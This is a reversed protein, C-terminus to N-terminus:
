ERMSRNISIRDRGIVRRGAVGWPHSESLYSQGLYNSGLVLAVYRSGEGLSTDLGLRASGVQFLAWYLKVEFDTHAPKERAVVEEVQALNQLREQYSENLETPVLVSFRHANRKIPLALSVFEIWDFLPTGSDSVYEPLEIEEFNQYSNPEALQYAQNLRAIQQYRRVLFHQYALKDALEVTAYTFGIVDRLFLKWDRAMVENAPLTAPLRIAEISVYERGWQNNVEQLVADKDGNAGYLKCVFAQFSRQLPLAGQLPSWPESKLNFELTKPTTPDGIVVGPNSRTLFNETIRVSRGGMTGLNHSRGELLEDFISEDACPDITLRIAARMGIQTGRWRFLLEAHDLFLRRRTDSWSPDMMAGLWGALWELYEPPATRSDLLVEALEIRGELVTYLGEVNALFRDIFSSSHRNERFVAPLYENLYSFRPYYARLAQIRPSSRGSGHLNLRLELYRGQAQQFLLEWSGMGPKLELQPGFPEHYPLESGEARLYLKPERTWPSDALLERENAVRTEVEIATGNPICADLVLRHWVLEPERGDFVLGPFCPVSGDLTLTKYRRRPQEALPLWFNKFDYYAEIGTGIIGKGAYDRLPLFTSEMSLEIDSGVVRLLLKFAQKGNLAILYLTGQLRHSDTSIDQIFYMDHIRLQNVSLLDGVIEENLEIDTNLNGDIFHYIVSAQSAEGTALILVSGDALAEIAYPDIDILPSAFLLPIGIPFQRGSRPEYEGDVPVFRNGDSGPLVISSGSCPMVEFYRDLRWFQHPTTTQRDLIWLGGDAAPSLDFPAFEVEEPWQKWFPPGGAHLDFILLGAPQLSGIVLYEHATVTLGRLQPVAIETAERSPQFAGSRTEIEAVTNLQDVSWFLSEVAPTAAPRYMVRNNQPGIWYVNGYHDYAAGRRQETTFELEDASAPVELIEPALSLQQRTRDWWIHEAQQSAHQKVLLPLWDREGLLMHFNSGNVDM